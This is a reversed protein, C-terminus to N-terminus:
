RALLRGANRRIICEATEADCLERLLGLTLRAYCRGDRGAGKGDTCPCDSGFLLKERHRRLFERAFDRDRALANYGSGASLDGYLNPYESLWRDIPGPEGVPGGPYGAKGTDRASIAAWWGPGHGIFVTGPFRELVSELCMIGTNYAGEEVHILVPLGLEGAAQYIRLSGPHDVPLEVKQEGIGRFGAAAFDEVAKEPRDAQPDASAFPILKDPANKAAQIIWEARPATSVDLLWSASLGNAEAHRLIRSTASELDPAIARDLEAAGFVLHQHIDYM